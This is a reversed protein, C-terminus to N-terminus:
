PCVTLDFQGSVENDLDYTGHLGGTVHTSTVSDVVIRGDTAIKNDSGDAFTMNRSLNMTYDGPTKPISVILHPGSPESGCATYAKPYLVAFFDDQGESLFGDTSGTVFTWSQGSVMGSLTTPDIDQSTTVTCAGTLAALSLALLAALKTM